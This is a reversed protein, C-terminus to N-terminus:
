THFIEWNSPLCMSRRWFAVCRLCNKGRNRRTARKMSGWMSWNERQSPWSSTRMTDMVEAMKIGHVCWLYWLLKDKNKRFVRSNWRACCHTRTMLKRKITDEQRIGIIVLYDLTSRFHSIIFMFFFLPFLIPLPCPLLLCSLGSLLLTRNPKLWLVSHSNFLKLLWYSCDPSHRIEEAHLQGCTRLLSAGFGCEVARTCTVWISMCIWTSVCSAIVTPQITSTFFPTEAM